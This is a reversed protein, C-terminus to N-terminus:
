SKCVPSTHTLSLNPNFYPDPQQTRFPEYKKASQIFDNEPIFSDRSRSEYHYLKVNSLVANFLNKKHARICLEVDSGCITFSEDFQGLWEFKIAEIAMCAGTVAM